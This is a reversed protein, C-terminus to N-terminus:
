SPRSRRITSRGTRLNHIVVDEPGPELEEWYHPYSTEPWVILDPRYTSALASLTGFHHVLKARIAAVTMLSRHVFIM